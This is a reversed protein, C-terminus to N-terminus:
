SVIATNTGRPMGAVPGDELAVPAPQRAGVHVPFDAMADARDKGLGAAPCAVFRWAVM